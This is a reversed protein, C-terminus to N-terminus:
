RSYHRLTQIAARLTPIGHLPELKRALRGDTLSQLRRHVSLAFDPSLVLSAPAAGKRGWPHCARAQRSAVAILAVAWAM